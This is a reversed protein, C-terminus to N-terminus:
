RAAGRSRLTPCWHSTLAQICRRKGSEWSANTAVIRNAADRSSGEVTRSYNRSRPLQGQCAHRRLERRPHRYARARVGSLTTIFEEPDNLKEDRHREVLKTLTTQIRKFHELILPGDHQTVASESVEGSFRRLRRKIAEAMIHTYWARARGPTVNGRRAALWMIKEYIAELETRLESDLALPSNM